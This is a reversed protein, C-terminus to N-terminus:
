CDASVVGLGIYSAAAEATTIKGCVTAQDTMGPQHHLPGSCVFAPQGAFKTPYMAYERCHPCVLLDRNKRNKTKAM